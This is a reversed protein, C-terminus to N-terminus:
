TPNALSPVMINDLDVPAASRIGEYLDTSIMCGIGDRSYLELVLGGEIRADVIHTRKVGNKCAVVASVVSNPFKMAQLYATKLGRSCTGTNRRPKKFQRNSSRRSCVLLLRTHYPALIQIQLHNPRRLGLM